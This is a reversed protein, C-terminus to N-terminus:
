VSASTRLRILDALSPTEAPAMRRKLLYEYLRVGLKAATSIITQFSDWARAGAQSQPGFSVDRKRVRRRAALEMDNNHLPIEPHELVLLLLEGNTLLRGHIYWWRRGYQALCTRGFQVVEALLPWVTGGRRATALSYWWGGSSRRTFPEAVLV